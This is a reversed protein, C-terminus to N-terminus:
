GELAHLLMEIAAQASARKVQMRDGPLHFLKSTEGGAHSVAIWVTGVPKEPTGGGPGAVGTIAAAVDVALVSRVGRAMALATEQSVAGHQDLTSEQVQLLRHKIPNAYAVIGGKFYDSSGPVNTLTHGLLGGTCSEAVGLTLGRERLIHGLKRSLIELQDEISQTM